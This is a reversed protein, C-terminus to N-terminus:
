WVAIWVACKDGDAPAIEIVQFVPDSGDSGKILGFERAFEGLLSAWERATAENTCGVALLGGQIRNDRFSWEDSQLVTAFQLLYGRLQERSINDNPLQSFKADGIFLYAGRDTVRGRFVDPIKGSPLKKLPYKYGHFNAYDTMVSEIREHEPSAAEKLIRAAAVLRKAVEDMKKADMVRLRLM